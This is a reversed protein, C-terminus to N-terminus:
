HEMAVIMVNVFGMDSATTVSKAALDIWYATSLTLGTVRYTISFPVNVDGVATPAVASTYTQVVGIQTGALATNSTPAGGTGYSLQYTVGNDVTTASAANITGSITIVINGTTAPTISGALGQMLFSSTSSPFTPSAVTKQSGANSVILSQTVKGGATLALLGSAGNTANGAATAVGTGLGSVGTSIPLGTANTLTGSTPTGLAGGYLVFAGASGTNVALATAVGTGLGSVGTSIPLGTANTLTGMTPTGMDGDYLVPAGSSGTNVALATAIGTGLGSVGTSIPLGTANTLTGSSPTGLGGGNVVFAGATGTNVGLATLVGTGTATGAIPSTGNGVLIDNATLTSAGTGGISVPFPLSTSKGTGLAVLQAATTRSTTGAQVCPILESGNLSTTPPLVSFPESANAM